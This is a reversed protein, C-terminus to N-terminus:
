NKGTECFRTPPPQANVPTYSVNTEPPLGLIQAFSPNARVQKFNPDQAILIGIPIIEFLTRLDQNLAAIEHERTAIAEAMEDMTRALQGLEGVSNSFGTRATFDGRQLKQATRM